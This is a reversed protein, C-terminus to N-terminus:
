SLILVLSVVAVPPGMGDQDSYMLKKAKLKM